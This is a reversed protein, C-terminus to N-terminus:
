QITSFKENHTIIIQKAFVKEPLKNKTLLIMTDSYTKITEILDCIVNVDDIQDFFNDIIYFKCQQSLMNNIALNFSLQLIFSEYSSLREIYLQQGDCNLVFFTIKKDSLDHHFTYKTFKSFIKNINNNLHTLYKSLIELQLDNRNFINRYIDYISIQHELDKIKQNLLDLDASCPNKTQEKFNTLEILLKEKKNKIEILYNNHKNTNFLIHFYVLKDASKLTLFSPINNSCINNNIFTKYDGVYQKILTCVEESTKCKIEKKQESILQSFKTKFLITKNSGRKKSSAIKEIVYYLDNHMITLEIFGNCKGLHVINTKKSLNDNVQDFLAFLIINIISTKGTIKQSCINHIGDTFDICNILNDGYIFMNQFRLKVIKWCSIEDSNEVDVNQKLLNHLKIVEEYLEPKVQKKIIEEDSIPLIQMVDLNNDCSLTQPTETESDSICEKTLLNQDIESNIM